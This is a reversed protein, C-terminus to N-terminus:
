SAPRHVVFWPVDDLEGTLVRAALEERAQRDAKELKAALGDLDLACHVETQTPAPKCIGVWAPPSMQREIQWREGFRTLVTDLKGTTEDNGCV